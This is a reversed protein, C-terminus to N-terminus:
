FEEYFYAIKKDADDWTYIKKNRNQFYFNLLAFDGSCMTAHALLFLSLSWKWLGPLLFLLLMLAMSIVVFPIIAVIIFQIPSAVYRHATVYFLYQKLDMGIRINRAGSFYYPLIHLLEHVPICIIPLIILGLISHMIIYTHPFQGAINIRVFATIGLFLLCLSWFIFMLGSKKKLYNFIFPILDQYSVALILRFKTQDDLDEVQLTM